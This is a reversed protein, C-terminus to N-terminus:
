KAGVCSHLGRIPECRPVDDFGVPMPEIHLEDDDGSLYRLLSEVIPAYAPPITGSGKLLNTYRDFVRRRAGQTNVSRKGYKRREPNLFRRLLQQQPELLPNGCDDICRAIMLLQNKALTRHGLRELEEQISPHLGRAIVITNSVKGRTICLRDAIQQTTYGLDQLELYRFGIRWVPVDLRQTNEVLPIWIDDALAEDSASSVLCM